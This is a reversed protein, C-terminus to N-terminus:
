GQGVTFDEKGRVGAESQRELQNPCTLKHLDWSTTKLVTVCKTDPRGLSMLILDDQHICFYCSRYIALLKLCLTLITVSVLLFVHLKKFRSNAVNMDSSQLVIRITILYNKFLVVLVTRQLPTGCKMMLTPPTPFKKGRSFYLKLILFIKKKAFISHKPLM